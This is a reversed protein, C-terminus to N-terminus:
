AGVFADEPQSFTGASSSKEIVHQLLAFRRSRTLDRNDQPPQGAGACHFAGVLSIDNLFNNARIEQRIKFRRRM